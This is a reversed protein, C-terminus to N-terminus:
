TSLYQKFFADYFETFSLKMDRDKDAFWWWKSRNDKGEIKMDKMIAQFETWDISNSKNTDFKKFREVVDTLCGVKTENNILDFKNDKELWKYFEDETLEKNGDADMLFSHLEKVEGELGYQGLM